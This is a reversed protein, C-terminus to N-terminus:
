LKNLYINKINEIFNQFDFKSLILRDNNKLKEAVDNNDLLTQIKDTLDNINKVDYILGNQNNEIIETLSELNSCVISIKAELAELLTYPLGEKISTLAFIDFAKLYKYANNINGILFFNKLNNKKILKQLNEKEPGSGIIIFLLNNYKENLLIASEILYNIGKNSYLNSITGIIKQKTDLTNIKQFLFERADENNLYNKSKIGNYIMTLKNKSVINKELALNYDNQSVCIIKDKFKSSFKELLIYFQKKTPNLNEKFVWGHATYIIKKVGTLKGTISAIFGAKSSHLHIIDFKYKKFFIFLELFALKDKFININRILHKLKVIKVNKNTIYKKLEEKKGEGFAITIEFNDDLNNIIDCLYKQAGGFHTQTIIHCLKTKNKNM